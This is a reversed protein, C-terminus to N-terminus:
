APPCRRLRAASGSAGSPERRPLRRASRCSTSGVTFCPLVALLEPGTGLESTARWKLLYDLMAAGATTLVMLAAITRVHASGRFVQWASGRDDSAAAPLLVPFRAISALGLACLTHLAALLLLVADASWWVAARDAAVSGLVGGITGAAAIRGFARRAGRPDFREGIISWFGSLLLAAFGGVHLYLAVVVWPHRPSFHWEVLHGLASLLFGSRVVREPSFRALLRAFVPVMAVALGATGMMMLPLATTPWVALSSADRLAKSAVQHGLMLAATAMAFRSLRTVNM